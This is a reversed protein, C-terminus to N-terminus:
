KQIIKRKYLGIPLTIIHEKKVGYIDALSSYNDLYEGLYGEALTETLNLDNMLHLGADIIEARGSRHLAFLYHFVM